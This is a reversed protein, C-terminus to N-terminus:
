GEAANEAADTKTIKILNYFREFLYSSDHPGPSAEPHYQISFLPLTKHAIGEVTNDNLNIHTVEVSDKPLSEIEVVFGHNQSTIEIKGTTLDKVPHNAGRHGFKLKKTKGGLALGMIQCGLCIGFSPYAHIAKRVEEVYKGLVGPDGPGNSLFVGDPNLAQVEEFTTGAPVVTSRIKAEALMRLINEKVGFDYVVVHYEPDPVAQDFVTDSRPFEYPETITIPDVCNQGEMQPSALVKKLLSDTDFDTTSVIGRQAGKDRLHLVLRRTDIDEIGVLGNRRFYDQISEQNRYNSALRSIERVIMGSIFPQRAEVDRENTGYNGILPYTMTIIQGYYSPDTAIEQYGTMSTNFVVEACVEGDAGFSNGHFVTGDELM